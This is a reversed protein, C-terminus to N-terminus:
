GPIGDMFVFADQLVNEYDANWRTVIKLSDAELILFLYLSDIM